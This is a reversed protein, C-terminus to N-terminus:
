DTGKESQKKWFNEAHFLDSLDLVSSYAPLAFGILCNKFEDTELIIISVSRTM